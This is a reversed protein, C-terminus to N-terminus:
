KFVAYSKLELKVAENPECIMKLESVQKLDVDILKNLYGWYEHSDVVVTDTITKCWSLKQTIVINKIGFVITYGLSDDSLNFHDKFHEKMLKHANNTTMLGNSM